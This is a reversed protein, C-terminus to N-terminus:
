PVHRPYVQGLQARADEVGLMPAIVGMGALDRRMWPQHPFEGASEFRKHLVQFLVIGCILDDDQYEGLESPTDLIVATARIMARTAAGKNHARSNGAPQVSFVWGKVRCLLQIVFVQLM